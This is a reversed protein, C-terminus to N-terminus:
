GAAFVKEALYLILYLYIFFRYVLNEIYLRKVNVQPVVKRAKIMDWIVSIIGLSFMVILIKEQLM